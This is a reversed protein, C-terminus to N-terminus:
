RSHSCNRTLRRRARATARRGSPRDPRARARAAVHHGLELALEGGGAAQRAVEAHRRADVREALPGSRSPARGDCLKRCISRGAISAARSAVSRRRAARCSGPAAGASGSPRHSRARPAARCRGRSGRRRCARWRASAERRAREGRTSAAARISSTRRSPRSSLPAAMPTTNEIKKAPPTTSISCAAAWLTSRSASHTSYPWSSSM